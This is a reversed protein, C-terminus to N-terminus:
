AAAGARAEHKEAKALRKPVWDPKRTAKLAAKAAKKKQKQISAALQNAQGGPTKNEFRKNKNKNKGM